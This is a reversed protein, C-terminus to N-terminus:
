NLGKEQPSPAAMRSQQSSLRINHLRLFDQSQLGAMTIDSIVLGIGAVYRQAKRLLSFILLLM